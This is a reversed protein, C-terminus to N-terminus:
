HVDGTRDRIPGPDSGRVLLRFGSVGGRGDRIIALRYEDDDVFGFLDESYPILKLESGDVYRWYLSGNKLLIAYRGGAFEGTYTQEKEATLTIPAAQAELAVLAWALESRLEEDTVRALMGKVAECHAVALANESPVEIHPTVGTREWSTKTVPNVPRAIPIDARLQLIPFDWSETWHAAGATTEGILIARKANKMGYSFAEAGSATRASTLIYLDADVLKHGPVYSYTWSQELSDTEPFYLANIITPKRFFYSSLFKVMSEHGGGNYRLDIIAAGCRALFGVASAMADGAYAADEFRDLRLYGVNGSLWEVKRISFNTRARRAIEASGITDGIAPPDAPSMVSLYIHRDHTFSRMDDRLKNVITTLETIDDYAGDAFRQRIHASLARATDPYVYHREYAALVSDIIEAVDKKELVRSRNAQSCASTASVLLAGTLVAFWLWQRWGDIIRIGGM